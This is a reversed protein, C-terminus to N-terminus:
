SKDDESEFRRYIFYLNKAEFLLIPAHLKSEYPQNKNVTQVYIRKDTDGVIM